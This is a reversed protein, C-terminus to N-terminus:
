YESKLYNRIDDYIDSNDPPEITSEFFDVVRYITWSRQLLENEVDIIDPQKIESFQFIFEYEIGIKAKLESATKMLSTPSMKIENIIEIFKM